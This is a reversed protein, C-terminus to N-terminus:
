KSWVQLRHKVLSIFINNQHKFEGVSIVTATVNTTFM